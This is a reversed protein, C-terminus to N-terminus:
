QFELYCKGTMTINRFSKLHPNNATKRPNKQPKEPTKQPNKPPNKKHKTKKKKKKNQESFYSLNPGELLSKGWGCQM